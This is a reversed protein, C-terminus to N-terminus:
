VHKSLLSMQRQGNLIFPAKAFFSKRKVFNIAENGSTSSKTKPFNQAKHMTNWIIFESQQVFEQLLIYNQVIQLGIFLRRISVM